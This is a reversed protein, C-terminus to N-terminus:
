CPHACHHLGRSPWATGGLARCCLQPEPNLCLRQVQFLLISFAARGHRSGTEGRDALVQLLMLVLSSSTVPRHVQIWSAALMIELMYVLMSHRPLPMILPLSSSQGLM